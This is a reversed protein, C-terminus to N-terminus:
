KPRKSTDELRRRPFDHEDSVPSLNVQDPVNLWGSAAPRAEAAEWVVPAVDAALDPESSEDLAVPGSAREIQSDTVRRSRRQSDGITAEGGEDTNYRYVLNAITLEDGDSLDAQDRQEGNVRVGNTSGLDRVVLRKAVQALV